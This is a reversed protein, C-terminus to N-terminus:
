ASVSGALPELDAEFAIRTWRKELVASARMGDREFARATLVNPDDRRYIKVRIEKVTAAEQDSPESPQDRAEPHAGAEGRMLVMSLPTWSGGTLHDGERELVLYDHDHPQGILHVPAAIKGHPGLQDFWALPIEWAGVTAVIRDYPARPAFGLGGDGMVVSVNTTGAATLHMRASAVVWGEIDVTVVRGTGGVIQAILAANYGSGAGIELVNQGPQIDAQELMLAVAAPQSITSAPSDASAGPVDCAGPLAHSENAYARELTLWPCFTHRSVELMATEVRSDHLVGTTKLKEILKRRLTADLTPKQNM